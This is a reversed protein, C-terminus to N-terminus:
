FAFWTFVRVTNNDSANAGAGDYNLRSGNFSLYATYQVGVRLNVHPGLKSKGDGFPTGDLQLTVGSSNPKLLLNGGYQTPNQSGDISFGGVTAGIKNHWYYSADARLENLTSDACDPLTVGIISGDGFGLACTANLSQKEHVYRANFSLTDSSALTKIWSADLGVDSYKDTYGTTRDRNPFLNAKLLFAGVELTGGALPRQYAIRAYPALGQINGPSLPDAGLWRLTGSAPTSYAGGELYLKSDIWAYASVGLVSQALGGDILPSAAPSPALASSTYPFGWAPTTNWVDQVTPNNNLTLGYVVDKGGIQGTNVLRLDLNDWTFVKNVGDYTTQVFGGVHSGIGGALFVSAQDFAFNNNVGFGDAPPSAQDHKTNTFSGVAMASVPLTFKGTRLTYGRLKFDRGFPTLQPGFGGVHCATCAQGTQVAFSPVTLAPSPVLLLAGAGFAAAALLSARFIKRTQSTAAPQLRQSYSM